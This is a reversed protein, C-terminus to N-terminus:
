RVSLVLLMWSLNRWMQIRFLYINIMSAWISLILYYFISWSSSISVAISVLIVKPILAKKFYAKTYEVSNEEDFPELNKLPKKDKYKDPNADEDDLILQEANHLHWLQM